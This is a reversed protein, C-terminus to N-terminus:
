TKTRNVTSAFTHLNGGHVDCTLLCHARIASMASSVRVAGIETLVKGLRLACSSAAAFTSPRVSACYTSRTSFAWASWRGLAFFYSM